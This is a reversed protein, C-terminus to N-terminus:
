VFLWKEKSRRFNPVGFFLCARKKEQEELSNFILYTLDGRPNDNTEETPIHGWRWLPCRDMGSRTYLSWSDHEMWTCVKKIEMKQSETRTEAIQLRYVTIRALEM